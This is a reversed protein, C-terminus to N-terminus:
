HRKKLHNVSREAAVAGRHAVATNGEDVPRAARLFHRSGAGPPTLPRVQCQLCRGVSLEALEPLSLAPASALGPARVKSIGSIIITSRKRPSKLKLKSSESLQRIAVEAVPDSGSLVLLEAPPPCRQRRQPGASPGSEAHCERFPARTRRPTLWREPSPISSWSLLHVFPRQGKPSRSRRPASCDRGTGPLSTVVALTLSLPWRTCAAGGWPWYWARAVDPSVGCARAGHVPETCTIENM